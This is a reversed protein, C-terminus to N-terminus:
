KPLKINTFDMTSHKILGVIWVIALIYKVKENGHKKKKLIKTILRLPLKLDMFDM